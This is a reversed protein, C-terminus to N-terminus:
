TMIMLVLLFKQLYEAGENSESMVSETGWKKAVWKVRSLTLDLREHHTMLTDFSRVM